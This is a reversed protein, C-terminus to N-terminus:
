TILKFSSLWSAFAYDKNVAWLVYYYIKIQFDAVNNFIYFLKTIHFLIPLTIDNHLLWDM